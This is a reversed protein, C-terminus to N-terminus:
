NKLATGHGHIFRASEETYVHREAALSKRVHKNLAISAFLAEGDLFKLEGDIRHKIRSDTEEASIKPFPQDSAMIWGWTDAYSPVHAAYPIVYKFTKRLTNYISSYVETHSLIGAPGGQTVLIGGDKLRPKLVREYFSKTYLKYCPGGEVPDALDGILIDFKETTKVLEARACNIILELRDSRFAEGNVTLHKRCFEVVEEDIDCMIVREVSRHRLAERATSGEGGGMIFVSKPNSHYLLAPHVISEHYVFEDAEASQLKGDLILVKGFPGSEVLEINQFESVGTHLIKSVGFVWRLDEELEEEFWLCRKRPEVEADVTKPTPTQHSTGNVHVRNIEKDLCEVM